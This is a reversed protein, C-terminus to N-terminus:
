YSPAEEAEVDKTANLIIVGGIILLFGVLNLATVIEDWLIMGVLATLITGGGAWIAHALSLPLRKLCLSLCYFSIVYGVILGITPFLNTFGESLKLMTTALVESIISLTLYIFGKM